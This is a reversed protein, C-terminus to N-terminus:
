RKPKPKREKPQNREREDDTMQRIVLSGERVQAEIQELKERRKEEDREKPTKM